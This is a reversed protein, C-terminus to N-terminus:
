NIYKYGVDLIRPRLFEGTVELHLWGISQKNEKNLLTYVLYANNQGQPFYYANRIENDGNREYYYLPSNQEDQSNWVYSDRKVYEGGDLWLPSWIVQGLNSTTDGLVRFTNNWPYVASTYSIYGTSNQYVEYYVRIDFLGDEDLDINKDYAKIDWGNEQSDYFNILDPDEFTRFSSVTAPEGTVIGEDPEEKSCASILVITIM